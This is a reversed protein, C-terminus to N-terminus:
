KEWQQEMPSDRFDGSEEGSLTKGTRILMNKEELFKVYMDRDVVYKKDDFDVIIIVNSM